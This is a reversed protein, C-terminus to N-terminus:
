RSGKGSAVFLPEANLKSRFQDKVCYSAWKDSTIEKVDCSHFANREKWVSDIVDAFMGHSEVPVRWLMHVHVNAEPHEILGISSPREDGTRKAFRRGYMRRCVWYDLWDIDAQVQEYSVPRVYPAVNERHVIQKPTTETKWVGRPRRSTQGGIQEVYSAQEATSPTIIRHDTARGAVHNNYALTVGHTCPYSVFMEEWARAHDIM